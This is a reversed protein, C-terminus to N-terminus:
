NEILYLSIVLQSQNLKINSSMYRINPATGYNLKAHQCMKLMKDVAGNNKFITLGTLGSPCFQCLVLMQDYIDNNGYFTMATYIYKHYKRNNSLYIFVPHCYFPVKKWKIDTLHTKASGTLFFIDTELLVHNM